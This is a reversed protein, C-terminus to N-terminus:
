REGKRPRGGALQCVALLPHGREGSGETKESSRSLDHSGNSVFEDIRHLFLQLRVFPSDHVDRVTLSAKKKSKSDIINKTKM